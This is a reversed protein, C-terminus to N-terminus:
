KAGLKGVFLGTRPYLFVSTYEAIQRIATLDQAAWERLVDDLTATAGSPLPASKALDTQTLNELLELNDDRREEWHALSEEPERGSYAGTSFYAPRDYHPLPSKGGSLVIDLWARFCHAERHSMYELFEALSYAVPDDKAQAHEDSLGEMLELVIDPTVRLHHLAPHELPPKAM